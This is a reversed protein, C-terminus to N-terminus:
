NIKLALRVAHQFEPMQATWQITILVAAVTLFQVLACLHELRNKFTLLIVSLLTGDALLLMGALFRNLPAPDPDASVFDISPLATLVAWAGAASLIFM